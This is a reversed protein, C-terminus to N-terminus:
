IGPRARRLAPQGACAKSISILWKGWASWFSERPPDLCISHNTKALRSDSNVYPLSELGQNELCFVVALKPKAPKQVRSLIKIKAM